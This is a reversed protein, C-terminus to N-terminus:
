AEPLKNELRVAYRFLQEVDGVLQLAEMLKRLHERFRGHEQAELTITAM